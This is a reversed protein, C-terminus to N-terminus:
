ASLEARQKDAQEKQEQKDIRLIVSLLACALYFLINSPYQVLAQQPYNGINFVFIILIMALCYIKLEPNKILYYNNIGTKLIVFMLFCFLILGVYGMEVAVRVYGSDPPFKALFSNPAFRRGWIGVSGLGGGIPHSLIYPKIRKQNEARVNFSADDSPKFATQFRKIFQNSTPMFILGLLVVAAGVVFMLIKKNFNIVALMALAAPPLVFAGRTGSYLMVLFFFPIACALLVKKYMKIKTFIICMCLVAAVVMNYSFTVPDPFIAVKRLHGNIYLFSLRLPDSYYWAKEFPFLGFNEQQFGSIASLFALWLWLKVLFKIQAMTRVQYVFIFYMLMIFGVTRVTYVWALISPSAPNLVEIFNYALWALILYSIPNKFYSWDKDYKFKLLFGFILLYTIADLLIGTPTDPPLFESVYNLFFSVVMLMAIGFIPYAVIGLVVPIGIFVALLAGAALIGFMSIAVAIVIAVPLLILILKLTSVQGSLLKRSFNLIFNNQAQNHLM